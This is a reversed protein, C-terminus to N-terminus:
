WLPPMPMGRFEPSQQKTTKEDSLQTQSKKVRHVTARWAGRDMPSELWSYQLPNGNGEGHSRGLGPISGKDGASAPPNKVMQIEQPTRLESSEPDGSEWSVLLESPSRDMPAVTVPELYAFLVVDLGTVQGGKPWASESTM